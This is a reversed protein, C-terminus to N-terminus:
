KRVPIGLCDGACRRTADSCVDNDSLCDACSEVKSERDDNGDAWDVCADECDDVNVKSDVCEHVRDCYDGCDSSLGSCAPLAILLVVASVVSLVSLHRAPMNMSSMRGHYASVGARDGARLSM